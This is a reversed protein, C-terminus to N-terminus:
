HGIEGVVVPVPEGEMTIKHSSSTNEDSKKSAKDVVPHVNKTETGLKGVLEGEKPFKQTAM